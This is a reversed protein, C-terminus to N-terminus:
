SPSSAEASAKRIGMLWPFNYVKSELIYKNLLSMDVLPELTSSFLLLFISCVCLPVRTVLPSESNLTQGNCSLVLPAIHSM